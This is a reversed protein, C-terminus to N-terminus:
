LTSQSLFLAVQQFPKGQLKGCLKNEILYTKAEAPSKFRKNTAKCMKAYIKEGKKAAKAQRKKIMIIDKKLGAKVEKATDEYSLVKGGFKQAFKQASQEIGFAYKSIMSMTAPKNSGVVYTGQSADIFKLTDNNVVQPAEVAKGKLMAEEHMCHISCYQHTKGGVQAAHNTKYFMPLTMGCVPCFMKSKGEQLITAENMPVARFDIQKAFLDTVNITSAVLVFKSMTGMAERRTYM